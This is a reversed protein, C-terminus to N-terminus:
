RGRQHVAIARDSEPLREICEALTAAGGPDTHRCWALERGRVRDAAAPEREVFM